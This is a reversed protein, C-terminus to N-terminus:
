ANDAAAAAPSVGNAHGLFQGLLSYSILRYFLHARSTSDQGEQLRRRAAVYVIGSLLPSVLMPGMALLAPRGM